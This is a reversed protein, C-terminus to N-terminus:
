GKPSTGKEKEKDPSPPVPPSPEAQPQIVPKSETTTGGLEFVKLIRKVISTFVNHQYGALWALIYIVFPSSILQSQGNTLSIMGARMIWYIFAGIGAGMFPSNLYWLTHQKDFDQDQSVHKILALWAGMVGGLGGCIMTAVMGRADESFGSFAASTLGLFLIIFAIAFVIEYIFLPIGVTQSWKRSLDTQLVRFEAENVHREAEEYYGRGAMLYNQGYKIQNLLSRAIDLAHVKIDMENKAAEARQWLQNVREDTILMKVMDPDPPLADTQVPPESHAAPGPTEFAEKNFPPMGHTSEITPLPVEEKPMGAGGTIDEGEATAGMGKDQGGEGKVSALADLIEQEDASINTKDGPAPIEEAPVPQDSQPEKPNEEKGGM